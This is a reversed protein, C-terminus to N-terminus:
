RGGGRAVSRAWQFFERRRERYRRLDIPLGDSGAWEAVADDLEPTQQFVFAAFRPFTNPPPPEARLPQFGRAALFSALDLDTTRYERRGSDKDRILGSRTDGRSM